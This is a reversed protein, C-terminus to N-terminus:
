PVARWVNRKWFTLASLCYEEHPSLKELFRRTRPHHHHLKQPVWVSRVICLKKGSWLVPKASWGCEQPQFHGISGINHTSQEWGATSGAQMLQIQYYGGSFSLNGLIFPIGMVLKRTLIACSFSNLLMYHNWETGKKCYYYACASSIHWIYYLNRGKQSYKKM